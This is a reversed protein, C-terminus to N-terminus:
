SALKVPGPQLPGGSFIGHRDSRGAPPRLRVSCAPLAFASRAGTNGFGRVAARRRTPPWDPALREREPADRLADEPAPRVLDLEDRDRESFERESRGFGRSSWRLVSAAIGITICHEAGSPHFLEGYLWSHSLRRREVVEPLRLAPRRPAGHAFL